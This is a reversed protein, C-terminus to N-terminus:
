EGLAQTLEAKIDEVDEIGVIDNSLRQKLLISAHTLAFDQRVLSEVGGLTEALTFLKLKTTIENARQEGGRVVISIM